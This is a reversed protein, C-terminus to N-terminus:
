STTNSATKANDNIWQRILASRSQGSANSLATLSEVCEHSLTFTARKMLKKQAQRPPESSVSTTLYQQSAKIRTAGAAYNIADNIFADVTKKSSKTSPKSKKLSLLSM